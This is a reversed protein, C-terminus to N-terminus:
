QSVEAVLTHTATAFGPASLEIRDGVRARPRQGNGDALVDCGLMLVDGARLQMFSGVDRLLQEADRRLQAFDLTQRLEGNVRVALKFASPSGAEAVATVQPGVGLFGDLCKYKVPPRYFGQEVVSHPISFDNMLVYGALVNAILDSAAEASPILANPWNEKLVMGITAGIEVEPVQAPVPVSGGDPTWTNAPKLYLVPAKPAGKYPAADMVAQATDWEHQFNLLVGYVTGQPLYSTM